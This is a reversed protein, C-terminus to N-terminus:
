THLSRMAPSMELTIERCGRDFIRSPKGRLSNGIEDYRPCALIGNRTTPDLYWSPKAEESYILSHNALSRPRSLTQYLHETQHERLGQEAYPPMINTRWNSCPLDAPAWSLAAALLRWRSNHKGVFPSTCLTGRVVMQTFRISAHGPPWPCCRRIGSTMPLYDSYLPNSATM